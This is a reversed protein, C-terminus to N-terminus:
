DEQCRDSPGRVSKQGDLPHDSHILCAAEDLKCNALLDAPREPHATRNSLYLADIVAHNLLNERASCPYIRADRAVAQCFQGVMERYAAQPTRREVTFSELINGDPGRLLCSETDGALSGAEGHLCLEQSVPGSARTCVVSAMAGVKYRLISAATDDTDYPPAPAAEQDTWDPRFGGVNAGFVEEPLGMLRILLDIPHYALELLAGGGASAKDTRWDLNPGWNFLYHARGLFIRGVQDRLEILRAYGGEYRWQTGVAFKLKAQEMRRVMATAEDLNRGLPMDKWLHVGRQACASVLDGAQMPPISAFVVEPRAEALLSRNDGFHPVSHARGLEEARAIRRDSVGVVEVDDRELLCPLVQSGIPGLGIVAARLCGSETDPNPDTM